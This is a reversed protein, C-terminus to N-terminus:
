QLVRVQMMDTENTPQFIIVICGTKRDGQHDISVNGNVGGGFTFNLMNNTVQLGNDPQQGLALTKNVGYFWLLVAEYLKAPFFIDQKRWIVFYM